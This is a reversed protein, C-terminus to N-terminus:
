KARPAREVDADLQAIAESTPRGSGRCKGTKRRTLHERAAGNRRVPVSQGCEQCTGRIPSLGTAAAPVAASTMAAASAAAGRGKTPPLRWSTWPTTSPSNPM